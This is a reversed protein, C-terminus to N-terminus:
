AQVINGPTRCKISLSDTETAGMAKVQVRLGEPGGIGVARLVGQGIRGMTLTRGNLTVDFTLPLVRNRADYHRIEVEVPRRVTVHEGKDWLELVEGEYMHGLPSGGVYQSTDYPDPAPGPGPDPALAPPSPAPRAEARLDLITTGFLGRTAFALLSFTV